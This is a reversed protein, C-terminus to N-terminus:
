GASRENDVRANTYFHYIGDAAICVGDGLYNPYGTIPCSDM